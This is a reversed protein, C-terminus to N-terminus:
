WDSCSTHFWVHKDANSERAEVKAESSTEIRDINDICLIVKIVDVTVCYTCLGCGGTKDTTGQEM